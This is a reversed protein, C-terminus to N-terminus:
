GGKKLGNKNEVYAQDEDLGYMLHDVEEEFDTDTDFLACLALAEVFLHEDVVEGQNSLIHQDKNPSRINLYRSVSQQRLPSKVAGTSAENIFSISHFIRHLTAKTAMNPFIDYDTCFCIFQNFNLYGKNDQYCKYIGIIAKHFLALLQIM